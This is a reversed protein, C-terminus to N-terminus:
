FVLREHRRWFGLILFVIRHWHPNKLLESTWIGSQTCSLHALCFTPWQEQSKSLLEHCEPINYFNINYLHMYWSLWYRYYVRIKSVNGVFVHNSSCHWFSFDINTLSELDEENCEIYLNVCRIYLIADIYLILKIHIVKAYLVLIFNKLKCVQRILRLLMFKPHSGGHTANFDTSIFCYSSFQLERFEFM